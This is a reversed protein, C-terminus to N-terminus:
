FNFGNYISEGNILRRKYINIFSKLDRFYDNGINKMFIKVKMPYKIKTNSKYYNCDDIEYPHFYYSCIGNRLSHITAISNYLNGFVRHTIGSGAPTKFIPFSAWPIELLGSIGEKGINNRSTVYPKKPSKSFNGFKGFIKRTPTVSSDYKFGHSLLSDVLYHPISSNPSRYGIVENGSINELLNKSKYLHDNFKDQRLNAYDLHHYNHCGIEHGMDAIKRVM